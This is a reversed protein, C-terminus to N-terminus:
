PEHNFLEEFQDFVLYVPRLYKTTLYSIKDTLNMEKKKTICVDLEKNLSDNINENRRIFFPFWDPGDFRSALGCQVLSTKGTGSLGYILILPSEFVMEYLADIEKERGFFFKSDKLTFADLFKFPSKM